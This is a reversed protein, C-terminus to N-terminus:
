LKGSLVFKVSIVTFPIFAFNSGYEFVYTALTGIANVSYSIVATDSSVFAFTFIASKSFSSPVVVCVILLSSVASIVFTFMLIVACSM